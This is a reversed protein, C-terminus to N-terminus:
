ILTTRAVGKSMRTQLAWSIFQEFALLSDQTATRRAIKQAAVRYKHETLLALVRRRLSDESVESERMLECAGAEQVARSYLMQDLNSILGLYPVGASLAQQGSMTGGNCVVLQSRRAADMGPIFDALFVNAPLQSPNIRAATATIVTIPLGGLVRFLTDLLAPEGTSGLSVYVVPKDAPLSDWWRPTPVPASWLLPGIFAHEPPLPKRLRYLGSDNPYVAYDGASFYALMDNAVEPLRYKRLMRNIPEALIASAVPLAVPRMLHFILDSLPVGLLRTAVTDFPEFRTDVFPSWHADIITIVPVGALQSSAILSFRSDGVVIDPHFEHIIDLDAQVYEELTETAFLPQNDHVRQLFTSSPVSNLDVQVVNRDPQLLHNYRPDRAFCVSYGREALHSALLAPRAVHSLAVAEGVFLVRPRAPDVGSQRSRGAPQCKQTHHHDIM